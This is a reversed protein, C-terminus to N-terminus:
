TYFKNIDNICIFLIVTLVIVINFYCISFFIVSSQIICVDVTLVLLLVYIKTLRLRFIKSGLTDDDDCTAKNDNLIKSRM